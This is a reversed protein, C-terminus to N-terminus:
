TLVTEGDDQRITMVQSNYVSQYRGVISLDTLDLDSCVDHMTAAHNTYNTYQAYNLHRIKMHQVSVHIQCVEVFPVPEAPFQFM